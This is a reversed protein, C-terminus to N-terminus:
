AVSEYLINLESAALETPMSEAASSIQPCPSQQEASRLFKATSSIQELVLHEATFWGTSKMVPQIFSICWTLSTM